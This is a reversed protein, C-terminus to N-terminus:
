FSQAIQVVRAFVTSLASKVGSSNAVLVAVAVSAAFAALLGYEVLDEGRQEWLWRELLGGDM